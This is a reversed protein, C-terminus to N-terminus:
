LAVYVEVTIEILGFDVKEGKTEMVKFLSKLIDDKGDAEGKKMLSSREAVADKAAIEVNKLSMLAKLIRPFIAGGTLYFPRVYSPMVSATLLMPLLCDNAAIYGRHDTAQAMFGFMRSFFLEGIADFTYRSYTLMVFVRMPLQM